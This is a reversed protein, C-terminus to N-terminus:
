GNGWLHFEHGKSCCELSCWLSSWISSFRGDRLGALLAFTALVIPVAGRLGVWSVFLKERLDMKTPLLVLLVSIPRSFLASVGTILLGIGLLAPLHSPFVLLGLVLFM